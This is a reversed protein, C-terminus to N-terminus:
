LEVSALRPEFCCCPRMCAIRVGSARQPGIKIFTGLVSINGGLGLPGINAKNIENTIENEFENQKFYSGYIQSEVMLSAAEFHSRGIGIALTSPTCGLDAISEKGWAILEKKIENIDHKHFIRYTKGRIAPGGGFMLINVRLVDEKIYKILFPAPLVAAPDNDLGGSQDLREFEDGKIAMPRGPLKRLGLAVGKKIELLLNASLSKSGGIEILIHPIGTDDCLPSKQKQAIKANEVITELVWKSTENKENNIANEYCLYKSNSFTSGAKVLTDAIKEIVNDM